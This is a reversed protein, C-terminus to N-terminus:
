RWHYDIDWVMSATRPPVEQYFGFPDTKDVCYDNHHSVIHYKYASGVGIGPFFASWIGSSGRPHLRHRTKSWGNFDGMVSVHKAAPAWVGFHTGPVGHRTCPHAGLLRYMRYHSGENFLYLDQESLLTEGQLIRTTPVYLKEIM